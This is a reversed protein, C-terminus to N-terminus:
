QTTEKPTTPYKNEPGTLFIGAAKRCEASTQHMSFDDIIFVDVGWTGPRSLHVVSPAGRPRRYSPGDIRAM